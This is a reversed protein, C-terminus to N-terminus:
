DVEEMENKIEEQEVTLRNFTCTQDSVFTCLGSTRCRNLKVAFVPDNAFLYDLTSESVTRPAFKLSNEFDESLGFGERLWDYREVRELPKGPNFKVPVYNYAQRRPFLLIEERDDVIIEAFRSEIALNKYFPVQPTRSLVARTKYDNQYELAIFMKSISSKLINKTDYQWAIERMLWYKAINEKHIAREFSLEWGFNMASFFLVCWASLLIYRKMYILGEHKNYGITTLSM